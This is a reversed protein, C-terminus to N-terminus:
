QEQALRRSATTLLKSTRGLSYLAADLEPNTRRLRERQKEVRNSIRNLISKLQRSQLSNELRGNDVAVQLQGYSTISDDIREIQSRFREFEEDAVDYYGSGNVFQRNDYFWQALPSHEAQSRQNIFDIQEPSLTSFLERELEDFKTWDIQGTVVGDEYGWDAADYIKYWADLASQLASTPAVDEIGFITRAEGKRIASSRQQEGLADALQQRTIQGNQYRAVIVDEAAVRDENIRNMTSAFSDEPELAAEAAAKEAVRPDADVVQKQPGTLDRYDKKYIHQAANDKVEGLSVYTSAGLGLFAPATAAASMVGGENYAEVIDQVFLPLLSDRLQREIGTDDFTVKDGVFNTGTKADWLAGPIPATKSRVFGDWIEDLRSIDRINGSQSKTEGTVVRAVTRAIPGYGGWFDIRTDGIKGKGFNSSRPDTEISFNPIWGMEGAAKIAALGAMGQAVFMGLSKAQAAMIPDSKYLAVPNLLAKPDAIAANFISRPLLTPAIFRSALFNPAFFFANLLRANDGKLADWGSRGTLVNLTKGLREAEKVPIRALAQEITDDVQGYQDILQKSIKQGMSWRMYNGATTFADESGKLIRGAENSGFLVKGLRGAQFAEEKVSQGVFEVGARHLFNTIAKEDVTGALGRVFDDVERAYQSSGFARASAVGSKAWDTPSMGLALIGQRLPYSLDTSAMVARPLNVVDGLMEKAGYPRMSAVASTFEPGLVKEMQELQNITPIKFELLLSDLGELASRTQRPNLQVNKASAIATRMDTITQPSINAKNLVAEPSTLLKNKGVRAQNIAEVFPAVIPNAPEAQAIVKAADPLAKGVAKAGAAGAGVGAALALGGRLLGPTDEPLRENVERAATAAVGGVAGEAALRTGLRAATGAAGRLGLSAGGTVPILAASAIGLPSSLDELGAEVVDGVIGGPLNPVDVLPSTLRSIFRGFGGGGSQQPEVVPTQINTPQKPGEVQVSSGQAAQNSRERQRRIRTRLEELLDEDTNQNVVDGDKAKARSKKAFARGEGSEPLPEPTPSTNRTNRKRRRDRIQSTDLPADDKFKM